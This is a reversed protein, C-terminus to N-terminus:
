RTEHRQKWLDGLTQTGMHQRMRRVRNLIAGLGVDMWVSYAKWENLPPSAVIDPKLREKLPTM